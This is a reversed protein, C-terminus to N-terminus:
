YRSVDLGMKLDPNEERLWKFYNNSLRNYIRNTKRYALNMSLFIQLTSRPQTWLRQIISSWSFFKKRFTLYKEALEEPQMNKPQFSVSIHDYYSWNTHLIRGERMLRDFIYTGPYPTLINPCILPVKNRLLFDYTHDFIDASEDDLGFMFSGLFLVGSERCRKVAEEYLSISSLSKKIKNLAEPEITEVGVFLGKCGSRVASAFLKDDLVMRASAQGVWMIRLPELAKFLKLAYSRTGGINDDLFVLRRSGTTSIDKVINEISIFRQRHGYVRHVCCFECDNPCGRSFMIPMVNPSVFPISRRKNRHPLPSAAIDPQWNRYIKKLRNHSIDELISPWIGEAEGVVVADAYQASEYPLLSPHIGGLIVNSGRSRFDQALKYARHATATMSTIGVVDWDYDVPLPGDEEEAVVVEHEPPTLAAIISLPLQPIRLWAPFSEDFENRKPAILLIKM